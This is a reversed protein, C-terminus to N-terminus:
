VKTEGFLRELEDYDIVGSLIARVKALKKTVDWDLIFAGVDKCVRGATDEFVGVRDQGVIARDNGPPVACAPADSQRHDCTGHTVEQDDVGAVWWRRRSLM